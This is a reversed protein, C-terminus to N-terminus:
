ADRQRSARPTKAATRERRSELLALRKELEAVRYALQALRLGGDDSASEAPAPRAADASSQATAPATAAHPANQMMQAWGAFMQRSPEMLRMMEAQAKPDTAVANLHDQWLACAEAAMATLDPPFTTSTDDSM